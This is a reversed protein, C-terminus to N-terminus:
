FELKGDSTDNYYYPICKEQCVGGEIFKPDVFAAAASAPCHEAVCKM